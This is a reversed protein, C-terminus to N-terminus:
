VLSRISAMGEFLVVPVSAILMQKSFIAAGTIEGDRVFSMLM